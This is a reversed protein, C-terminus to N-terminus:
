ECEIDRFCLRLGVLLVECLIMVVPNLRITIGVYLAFACCVVTGVYKKLLM